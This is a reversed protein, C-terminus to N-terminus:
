EKIFKTKGSVTGDSAQMYYIGPLLSSIDIDIVPKNEKRQSAVLKGAADFINVQVVRDKGGFQLHLLDKAPNPYVVTYISGKEFRIAIVVSYTFKGDLDVQKIRYYSVGPLPNKDMFSYDHRLSSTGSGNQNGITTFSRGDPSRQIEFRANNLETATQWNLLVSDANLRANFSLWTVPTVSGKTFTKTNTIGWDDFSRIFLTHMSDNLSSVDAAFTYNTLDTTGTVTVIHGNGFGPDTDFFYELKTINGPVPNSPITVSAAIISFVNLNTHSWTGAADKTRVYIRHVGDTLGSINVFVNSLTIDNGATVPIDTANGFGPDTDLYYEAKVINGPVNNPPITVSGALVYFTALNTLSWNKLSDQTRLYIRHVGSPLTQTNVAFTGSLDFTPTIPIDTGNGFGPDTDYFYEAKKIRSVIAQPPLTVAPPVIFFTGLNTLSWHMDADRTRMYLRHAGSSLTQTNVPYSGLTLDTSATVPIDIGNGFGPDSDYFYEAKNINAAINNSPITPTPPLTFACSSFNHPHANNTNASADPVLGSICGDLHYLAITNADSTFASSPVTFNTTYRINNSFRVEDYIGQHFFNNNGINGAYGFDLTSAGITLATSSTQLALGSALTGELVGDVFLNISSGNNVAAVHHWNNDNIQKTASLFSNDGGSNLGTFMGIYGNNSTIGFDGSANGNSAIGILTPRNWYTANSGTETTKIWCEMTFVTAGNLMGNPAAVSQSTGDFTFTGGFQAFCFSGSLLLPIILWSRLKKMIKFTQM